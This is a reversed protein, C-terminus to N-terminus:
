NGACMTPLEFGEQVGIGLQKIITGEPRKHAATSLHTVMYIVSVYRVSVCAHMNMLLDLISNYLSILKELIIKQIHM